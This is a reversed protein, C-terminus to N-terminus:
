WLRGLAVLALATIMMCCKLVWCLYSPRDVWWPWRIDGVADPGAKFAHIETERVINRKLMGGIMYQAIHLILTIMALSAVLAMPRFIHMVIIIVAGVLSANSAAKTHDKVNDWAQEITM